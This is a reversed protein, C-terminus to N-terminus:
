LTVCALAVNDRRNRPLRARYVTRKPGAAMVDLVASTVQPKRRNPPRVEAHLPHPPTVPAVDGFGSPPLLEPLLEPLELLLEPPPEPLLEPPELLELPELLLEPLEPLLAGVLWRVLSAAHETGGGGPL